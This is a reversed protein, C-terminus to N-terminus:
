LSLWGSVSRCLSLGSWKFPLRLRSSNGPGPLRLEQFHCSQLSDKDRTKQSMATTVINEFTAPDKSISISLITM